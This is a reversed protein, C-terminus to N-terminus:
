KVYKNIKSKKRKTIYLNYICCSLVLLLIYGITDIKFLSDIELLNVNGNNRFYDTWETEYIGGLQTKEVWIFKDAYKTDFSTNGTIELDSGLSGIKYNLEGFSYFQSFNSVGNVMVKPQRSIVDANDLTITINSGSILREENNDNILSLIAPNGIFNLITEHPSNSIAYFGYLGSIISSNSKTEVQDVNLPVIQILNELDTGKGDIEISPFVTNTNIISSNSHITVNGTFTGEKFAAVGGKVLDSPNKEITQYHPLDIGLGDLLKGYLSYIEVSSLNSNPLNQLLPFVNIYHVDYNKGQKQLIFPINNDFKSDIEYSSPYTSPIISMQNFKITDNTSISKISDTKLGSVFEFDNLDINADFGPFSNSTITIKTIDSWSLNNVIDRNIDIGILNQIM